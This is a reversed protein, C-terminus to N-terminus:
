TSQFERKLFERLENPKAPARRAAVIYAVLRAEGGSEHRVLVTVARVDPHELLVHEIEKLEIRYGRMKVQHDVRGLM